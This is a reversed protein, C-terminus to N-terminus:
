GLWSPNYTSIDKGGISLVRYLTKQALEEPSVNMVHRRDGLKKVMNCKPLNEAIHSANWSILKKVGMAYQKQALEAFYVASKSEWPLAGYYDKNYRRACDLLTKSGSLVIDARDHYERRFIARQKM